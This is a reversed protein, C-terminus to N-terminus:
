ANRALISRGGVNKELEATVMGVYVVNNRISLSGKGMRSIAKPFPDNIVIVVVNGHPKNLERGKEWVM